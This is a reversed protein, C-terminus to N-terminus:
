SHFSVIKSCEPVWISAGKCKLASPVETASRGTSFSTQGSHTISRVAFAASSALAITSGASTSAQTLAFPAM